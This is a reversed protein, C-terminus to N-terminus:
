DMDIVEGLKPYEPELQYREHILRGFTQRAFDEGHTLIVRPRSASISDFWNLLDKQGAHGSLGGLTHVSAQVSITEGFIRVTQIGDALLRGLSGPSQYGVFLVTTSPLSLNQRFHHLIRGGTCMGAGAMIMLPGELDNLARSDNATASFNVTELNKRLEGSEQMALAEEDFVELHRSYIRTAEIAM